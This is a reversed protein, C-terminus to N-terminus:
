LRATQFFKADKFPLTQATAARRPKGPKPLLRDFTWAQAHTDCVQVDPTLGGAIRLCAVGSGKLEEDVRADLHPAFWDLVVVLHRTEAPM